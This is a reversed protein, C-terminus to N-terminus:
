LAYCLLYFLDSARGEVKKAVNMFDHAMVEPLPKILLRFSRSLFRRCAPAKVGAIAGLASCTV